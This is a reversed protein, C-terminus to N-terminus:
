NPSNINNNNNDDNFNDDIDNYNDENNNNENYKNDNYNNKNNNNNENNIDNNNNINNENNNNEDNNNENNNNNINNENSDIVLNKGFNNNLKSNNKPIFNNKKNSHAESKSKKLNNNNIIRNSFEPSINSYSKYYPSINNTYNYNNQNNYNNSNTNDTLSNNSNNLNTLIYSNNTNIKKVENRKQLINMRRNTFDLKKQLQTNIKLIQNIKKEKELLKYSFDKEINNLEIKLINIQNLLNENNNQSLNKNLKENKENIKLIKEKLSDIEKSYNNNIKLLFEIKNQAEISIKQFNEIIKDKEIIKQNLLNIQNNLNLIYNKNQNNINQNRLENIQNDINFKFENNENESILKNKLYLEDKLMKIKDKQKNIIDEYYVNNYNIMNLFLLFKFNINFFLNINNNNILNYNFFINNM